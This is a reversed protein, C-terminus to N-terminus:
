KAQYLKTTLKYNDDIEIVAYYGLNAAGPNLITLDDIKSLHPVHTHGFLLIDAECEQAAYIISDLSRKVGYQHGHILFFKNGCLTLLQREPQESVDYFDNGTVGTCITTPLRLKLLEALQELDFAHDGLHMVFDPRVLEAIAAMQQVKV